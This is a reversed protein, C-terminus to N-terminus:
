DGAGSPRCPKEERGILRLPQGDAFGRFVVIRGSSTVRSSIAFWRRCRLVPSDLFLDPWLDGPLTVMTEVRAAGEDCGPEVLKFIAFGTSGVRSRWRVASDFGGVASFRVWGWGGSVGVM